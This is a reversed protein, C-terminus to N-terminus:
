DNTPRSARPRDRHCCPTSHPRPSRPLSPRIYGRGDPTTAYTGSWRRAVPALVNGLVREARAAIQQYADDNSAFDFSEEYLHTGGITLCGAVRQTLPLKLGLDQDVPEKEPLKARAPVDYTTRRTISSRGGTRSLLAFTSPMRSLRFCSSVSVASPSVALWRRRSVKAVIAWASCSAMVGTSEALKVGNM